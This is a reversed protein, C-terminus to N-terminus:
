TILDLYGLRFNDQTTTKIDVLLYGFTRWVAEEYRNIFLATHGPYM